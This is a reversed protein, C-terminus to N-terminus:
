ICRQPLCEPLTPRGRGFFHISAAPPASADGVLARLALSRGAPPTRLGIAYAARAIDNTVGAAVMEPASVIQQAHVEFTELWRDREVVNFLAPPYYMVPRGVRRPPVDDGGTRLVPGAVAAAYTTLTRPFVGRSAAFTRYATVAM